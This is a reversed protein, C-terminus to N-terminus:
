KMKGILPCKLSCFTTDFPNNVIVLVCIGILIFFLCQLSGTIPHYQTVKAEAQGPKSQNFGSM